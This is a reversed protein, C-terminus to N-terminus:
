LFCVIKLKYLRRLRAVNETSSETEDEGALNCQLFTAASLHFHRDQRSRVVRCGPFQSCAIYRGAPDAITNSNTRWIPLGFGCFEVISRIKKESHRSRAM